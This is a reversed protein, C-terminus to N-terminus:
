TAVDSVPPELAELLSLEKYGLLSLLLSGCRPCSVTHPIGSQGGVVDWGSQIEEDLPLYSCSECARTRSWIAILRTDTDLGGNDNLARQVLPVFSTSTAVPLWPRQNSRKNEPRQNSDRRTAGSSATSASRDDKIAPKRQNTSDRSHAHRQRWRRCSLSTELGVMCLVSKQSGCNLEYLSSHITIRISEAEAECEAGRNPAVDDRHQDSSCFFRVASHVLRSTAHILQNESQRTLRTPPSSPLESTVQSGCSISFQVVYEVVYDM